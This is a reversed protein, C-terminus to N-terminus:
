FPKKGKKTYINIYKEEPGPIAPTIWRIDTIVKVASVDNKDALLKNNDVLQVNDICVKLNRDEAPINYQNLLQELKVIVANKKPHIIIVGNKAKEGYASVADEGKLINISEIKNPELLLHKMDTVYSNVVVMPQEQEPFPRNLQAFM